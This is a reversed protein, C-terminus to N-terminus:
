APQHAECQLEPATPDSHYRGDRIRSIAAPLRRNMMKKWGAALMRSVLFGRIGAFGSHELVLRTNKGESALQYRVMTRHGGGEWSYALSRNPELEVVECRVIGDFGPAPETRFTFRHGVEPQFDNPMLWEGIAVPDTLATWVQEVSYPYVAEFKLTRAM